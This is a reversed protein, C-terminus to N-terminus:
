GAVLVIPVCLNDVNAVSAAGSHYIYECGTLLKSAGRFKINNKINCIRMAVMFGHIFVRPITSTKYELNNFYDSKMNFM